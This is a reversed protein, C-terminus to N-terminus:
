RSVTSYGLSSSTSISSVAKRFYASYAKSNWRTFFGFTSARTRMGWPCTILLRLGSSNSVWYKSEAFIFSTSSKRSSALCIMKSSSGSIYGSFRKMASRTAIILWGAGPSHRHRRLTRTIAPENNKDKEEEHEKMLSVLQHDSGHLLGNFILEM